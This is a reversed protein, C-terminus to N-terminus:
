HTIRYLYRKVPSEDKLDNMEQYAELLKKPIDGEYNIKYYSFGDFPVSAESKDIKIRNEIGDENFYSLFKDERNKKVQTYQNDVIKASHSLVQVSDLGEKRGVFVRCKDQITFLTTTDVQNNLYRLFDSEKVSM